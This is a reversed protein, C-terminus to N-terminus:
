DANLADFGRGISILDDILPAVGWIEPATAALAHLDHRLIL